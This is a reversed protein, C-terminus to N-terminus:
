TLWFSRLPPRNYLFLVYSINPDNLSFPRKNPTIYGVGLSGFGFAILVIWDLVYSFIVKLSVNNRITGFSVSKSPGAM